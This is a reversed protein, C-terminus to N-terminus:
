RPPDIVTAPFWGPAAGPSRVVRGRVGLPVLPSLPLSGLSVIFARGVCLDLRYLAPEALLLLGGLDLRPAGLEWVDGDRVAAVGGNLRLGAAFFAAAPGASVEVSVGVDGLGELLPFLPVRQVPVRLGWAGDGADSGVLETRLFRFGSDVCVCPADVARDPGFLGGRLRVRRGTGDCYPCDRSPEFREFRRADDGM